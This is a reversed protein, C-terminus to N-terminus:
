MFRIPRNVTRGSRTTKAITKSTPKNRFKDSDHTMSRNSHDRTEVPPNQSIPDHNLVYAPKLRDISVNVQKDQMQLKFYKERRDLVMYPGEYPPQLSKKVLDVRVFVHSCTRLDTHVFISRSDRQKTPRPILNKINERVQGVYENSDSVNVSTGGYFDGPLRLTKGFVLEAASVGTDSRPTARLGLLVTHLEEVWTGKVRRAM